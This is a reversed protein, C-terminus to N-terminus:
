FTKSKILNIRVGAQTYIHVREDYFTFYMGGQTFLSFNEGIKFDLGFGSLGGMTTAFDEYIAGYQTIGNFYSEDYEVWEEIWLFNVSVEGYMYPNIFSRPAFNIKLGGGFAVDSIYAEPSNDDGFINYFRGNVIISIYKNANFQLGGDFGVGSSYMNGYVGDDSFIDPVLYAGSLNISMKQEFQAKLSMTSCVLLLIVIFSVKIKSFNVDMIFQTLTNHKSKMPYYLILM